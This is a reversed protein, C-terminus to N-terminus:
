KYQLSAVIGRLRKAVFFSVQYTRVSQTHRVYVRHTHVCVCIM